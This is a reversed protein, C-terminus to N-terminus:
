QVSQSIVSVNGNASKSNAKGATGGEFYRQRDQMELPIGDAGEADQLDDIEIQSFEDPTDVRRRKAPPLDGRRM